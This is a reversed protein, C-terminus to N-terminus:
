THPSKIKRPSKIKERKPRGTNRMNTSQVKKKKLNHAGSNLHIIFHKHCELKGNGTKIISSKRPLSHLM